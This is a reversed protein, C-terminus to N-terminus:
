RVQAVLIPGDITTLVALDTTIEKLQSSVQEYDRVAQAHANKKYAAYILGGPLLAALVTNGSKFRKQEVESSLLKKDHMLAIKLAAVEDVLADNDIGPLKVTFGGKVTKPTWQIDAGAAAAQIGFGVFFLMLSLRRIIVHINLM